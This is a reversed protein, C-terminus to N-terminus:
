RRLSGRGPSLTAPALAPKAPAREPRKISCIRITFGAPQWAWPHPGPVYVPDVKIRVIEELVIRFDEGKPTGSSFAGPVNQALSISGNGIRTVFCWKGLMIWTPSMVSSSPARVTRGWPSDPRTAATVGYKM